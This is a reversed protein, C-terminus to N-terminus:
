YGRKKRMRKERIDMLALCMERHYIQRPTWEHDRKKLYLTTHLNSYESHLADISRFKYIHTRWEDGVAEKLEKETMDKIPKPEPKEWYPKDPIDVVRNEQWEWEECDLDYCKITRKDCDILYGYREDGHEGITVSYEMDSELEWTDNDKRKIVGHLLDHAISDAEWLVEEGEGAYDNHTSLYRKLEAGIGDPYGDHHHYLHIVGICDQRIQQRIKICARTSM